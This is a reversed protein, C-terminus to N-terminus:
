LMCGKLCFIFSPFRNAAIAACPSEEPLLAALQGFFGMNQAIYRIITNFFQFFQLSHFQAFFTRRFPPKQTFRWYAKSFSNKPMRINCKKSKPCIIHGNSVSFGKFPHHIHGGIGAHIRLLQFLFILGNQRGVIAALGLTQIQVHSAALGALLLENQGVVTDMDEPLYDLMDYNIRTNAMGLVSPILLLLAVILILVRNKVVAKSLRM